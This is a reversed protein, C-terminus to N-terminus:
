IKFSTKYTNRRLAKKEDSIIKNTFLLVPITSIMSMIVMLLSVFQETLSFNPMFKLMQMIMDSSNIYGELDGLVSGYM